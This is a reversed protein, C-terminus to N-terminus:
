CGVIRSVDKSLWRFCVWGSVLVLGFVEERQIWGYVYGYSDLDMTFANRSTQVAWFGHDTGMSVM